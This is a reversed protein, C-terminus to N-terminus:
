KEAESKGIWKELIGKALSRGKTNLLLLLPYGVVMGAITMAASWGALRIADQDFADIGWRMVVERTGLCGAMIALGARGVTIKITETPAKVIIASFCATLISSAATISLWRWEGTTLIAAAWGFAATIYAVAGFLLKLHFEAVMAPTVQTQMADHIEGAKPAADFRSARLSLTVFSNSTEPIM